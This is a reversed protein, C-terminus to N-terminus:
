TALGVQEWPRTKRDTFNAGRGDLAGERNTERHAEARCDPLFNLTEAEALVFMEFAM